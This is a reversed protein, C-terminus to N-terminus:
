DVAHPVKLAATRMTVTAPGKGSRPLAIECGRLKSPDADCRVKGILNRLPIVGFSRSDESIGVNDGVVFTCDSPVELYRLGGASASSPDGQSRSQICPHILLLEEDPHARFYVRGGPRQYVRKIYTEGHLKFVVIEGPAPQHFRYYYADAWVLQRNRLTPEM